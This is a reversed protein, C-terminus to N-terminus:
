RAELPDAEDSTLTSGITVAAGIEAVCSEGLWADGAHVMAIPEGAVVREGVKALLEVGVAHDVTQSRHLRGAGLRRVAVGIGRAAIATVVGDASALVPLGLPATVLVGPATWVAPNGGQAEVWREAAALARGDSLAGIATREGTGAPVVGAAEALEGAMRVAIQRLDAPGGGRLVDAAERVELANGVMRGLPQNIASVITRVHRGWGEALWAMLAATDDAEEPTACSAGSGWTVELAIAEAGGALAKSMVSAAILARSEITGTEERLVSLRGDAPVLRPTQSIVACGVRDVQGIFGALDIQTRYGPIAELKDITGGWYGLGRRSMKAVRVGISAALPAAVLTVNDGVGGTSHLDGTSGLSSLDLREGSAILASTLGETSVRDLGRAHAIACWAAMQADTVGHALWSRVFSRVSDADVPEGRWTRELLELPAHPVSM